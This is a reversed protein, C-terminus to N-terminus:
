SVQPTHTHTNICTHIYVYMYIYIYLTDVHGKLLIGTEKYTYMCPISVSLRSMRIHVFCLLNSLSHMHNYAQVYAQM